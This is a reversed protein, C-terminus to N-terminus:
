LTALLRISPIPGSTRARRDYTSTSPSEGLAGRVAEAAVRALAANAQAEARVASLIDRLAPEPPSAAILAELRACSRAKHEALWELRPGDLSTIARREDAFAARLEEAVLRIEDLNNV